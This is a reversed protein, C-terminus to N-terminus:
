KSTAVEQEPKIGEQVMKIWKATNEKGVKLELQERPTM